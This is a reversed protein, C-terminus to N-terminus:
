SSEEIDMRTVLGARDFRYVHFVTRDNVVAGDMNRVVQHVEVSVAGDARSEIAVPEVLPDIVRWQNVWHARVAEQGLERTGQMGNPWDVEPTLAALVSDIDRANFAVYLDRLRQELETM